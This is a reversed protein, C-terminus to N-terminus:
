NPTLLSVFEGVVRLSDADEPRIKIAPFGPNLPRLEVAHHQWGDDSTTKVSHYQKVTYRGGDEPDLHTNVQVLLLRGGRTGAPSPRFLCWSESPIRPEMSHGIVQAAFMGEELRHGEVKIWGIEEPVGQPGWDGAAASVDYVPVHTTYREERKVTAVVDAGRKRVPELASQEMVPSTPVVYWQSNRTEFQVTFHTGPLGAKDGYWSRLLESLQNKTEGIPYAVNCAVKVFKFEWEAGDPLRVPTPGTPRGPCKSKEPIFLIARGSSHSVKAEFVFEEPQSEVLRRSRAYRSIRYEVIEETLQRLVPQESASCNLNLQFANNVRTFWKHGSQKDLWRSIPWKIWWQAWEEDSAAQHDIAHKEGTLDNSLVPHSRMFRRCSNSFEALDVSKFLSGEDLLVRLVVMKYSKNLNTLEVTKLWDSFAAATAAEEESLDGESTVFAFWSGQGAAIAKPLYGRSYVETMTPRRGLEDRIARYGEIGAQKGKPLFQKLVDRAELEVDLLCGEPLDPPDGQLWNRLDNWEATKSGLSLLHIMRQAFVRHNGVFDIVLLRSKGESARLGRGLQQLFVVKSETPRLMVVRDVAPIDLGENFMDVVCLYQLNGDRLGNLSESYSDTGNGSFVAAARHGNSILWNRTFVAHRQSCCFMITRDAPFEDLARALRGMRASQAVRRELEGLDFRGNRWPVQTFDVTDQIGIYHFPVLSEEEIGDGITAQYALNDDFITAVDYGDAREPTATLGLMFDSNLQALVRRYSPAHAHHVEDIVVYDFHEAVLKELGADRSLKQISAIVLDGDLDDSNGLYWSTNGEGFEFDLVRSIAAEAQALIHARHAVVLVRPRQAINRGVQRVDFAALWTKGMGTAVAVLARSYGRDRLQQLSILAEHQWPRPEFVINRSDKAEPQFHERRYQDARRAYDNLLETTLSTSKIWLKTFESKAQEHTQGSDSDSSLLNWEIGIKLAAASLNSSGVALLESNEDSIQWAKPHFSTAGIESVDCQFLRVDFKSSPDEEATSEVWGRLRRLAKVDSICLYDSVLIRVRAGSQIADFLREEIVDLGSMQVFSSLIDIRKAGAIRWALHNWLPSDPYGTSLSLQAEASDRAKKLYNGKEPIM